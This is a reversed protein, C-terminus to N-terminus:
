EDPIRARRPKEIAVAMVGSMRSSSSTRPVPSWDEAGAALRPDALQDALGARDHEDGVVQAEDGLEAVPGDQHLAALQDLFALGASITARYRSRTAFCFSSASASAWRNVVTGSVAGASQVAAWGATPSRARCPNVISKTVVLNGAHCWGDPGVAM